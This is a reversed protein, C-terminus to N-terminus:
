ELQDGTVLSFTGQCRDISVYVEDDLTHGRYVVCGRPVNMMSSSITPGDMMQNYEVSLLDYVTDDYRNFYIDEALTCSDLSLYTLATPWQTPLAVIFLDNLIITNLSHPLLPWLQFSVIHRGTGIINGKIILQSLQAPFYLQSLYDPSEGTYRLKLTLKRLSLPFSSFGALLIKEDEVLLTLETLAQFRILTSLQLPLEDFTMVLPVGNLCPTSCIVATISTLHPSITQYNTNTAIVQLGKRDVNFSPLIGSAMSGSVTFLKLTPPLSSWAATARPFENTTLELLNRPLGAIIDSRWYSGFKRQPGVKIPLIVCFSLKVLTVPLQALLSLLEQYNPQRINVYLNCQTLTQPLLMDMIQDRISITLSTLHSLTHLSPLYKQTITVLNLNHYSHLRAPASVADTTHTINPFVSYCWQELEPDSSLPLFHVSNVKPFWHQELWLKIEPNIKSWEARLLLLVTHNITTFGSMMALPKFHTGTSASTILEVLFKLYTGSVERMEVTNHILNLESRSNMFEMLETDEDERMRIGSLDLTTVSDPINHYISQYRPLIDPHEFSDHYLDVFQLYKLKTLQSLFPPHLYRDSFNVARRVHCIIDSTQVIVMEQFTPSTCWLKVLVVDDKFYPVLIEKWVYWQYKPYSPSTTLEMGNVLKM